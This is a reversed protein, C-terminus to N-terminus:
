ISMGRPDELVPGQDNVYVDPQVIVAHGQRRHFAIHGPVDNLLPGCSCAPLQNGHNDILTIRYQDMEVSREAGPYTQELPFRRSGTEITMDGAKIDALHYLIYLFLLEFLIGLDLLRKM